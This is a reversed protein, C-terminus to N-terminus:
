IEVYFKFVFLVFIGLSLNREVERTPSYSYGLSNCHIITFKKLTSSSTNYEDRRILNKAKISNKKKQSGSSETDVNRKGNNQNNIIVQQFHRNYM